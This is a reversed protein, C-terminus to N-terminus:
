FVAELCKASVLKAVPVITLVFLSLTIGYRCDEFTLKSEDQAKQKKTRKNKRKKKIADFPFLRM